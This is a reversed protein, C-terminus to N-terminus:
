GAIEEVPEVLLPKMHQYRTTVRKSEIDRFVAVVHDPSLGAEQAVLDAPIALNKGCLCLDMKDYPISFYFEEQSQNM